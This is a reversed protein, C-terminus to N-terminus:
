QRTIALALDAVFPPVQLELSAGGRREAEFTSCIRGERTNWGIVRYRGSCLRPVHLTLDVPKSNTRLTGSQGISDKRLLWIVAQADDGCGFCAVNDSSSEIEANLSIRQFRPWDVLPLFEAMAQQAKRMGRTLTHPSRNPWRM